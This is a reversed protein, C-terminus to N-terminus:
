KINTISYWLSGAEVVSFYLKCCKKVYKTAYLKKRNFMLVIEADTKLVEQNEEEEM